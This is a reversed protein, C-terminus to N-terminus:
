ARADSPLPVRKERLLSLIRKRKRVYVVEIVADPGPSQGYSRWWYGYIPEGGRERALARARREVSRRTTYVADDWWVNFGRVAGAQYYWRM